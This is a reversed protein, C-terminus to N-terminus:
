KIKKRGLAPMRQHGRLERTLCSRAAAEPWSISLWIQGSDRRWPVDANIEGKKDLRMVIVNAQGEDRRTHRWQRPSALFSLSMEDRANIAVGEAMRKPGARSM